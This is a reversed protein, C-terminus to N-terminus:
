GAKYSYPVIAGESSASPFPPAQDHQHASSTPPESTSSTDLSHELEVLHRIAQLRPLDTERGLAALMRALDATSAVAPRLGRGLHERTAARRLDDYGRRTGAPEPVVGLEGQPSRLRTMPEAVIAEELALARKDAREAGLDALAEEL